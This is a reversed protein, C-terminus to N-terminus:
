IHNAVSSITFCCCFALTKWGPFVVTYTVIIWTECIEIAIVLTIHNVCLYFLYNELTFKLEFCFYHCIVVLFPLIFLYTVRNLIDNKDVMLLKLCCNRQLSTSWLKTSCKLVKHIETNANCTLRLKFVYFISEAGKQTNWSFNGHKSCLLM